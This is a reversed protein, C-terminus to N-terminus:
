KRPPGLDPAAPDPSQRRDPITAQVVVGQGPTSVIAFQGGIAEIRDRMSTIGIGDGDQEPPIGAGDDTVTLAIADDRRALTVTAKAGPGAHKAVNQIAEGACFYIAAETADALRGLGDDIVEVPLPSQSALSRLAGVPGLGVLAAPYIGHALSRLEEIASELDHQAEDIQEAVQASDTLDRALDLRIQTSVLRAQAGDHLDRELKRREREGAHVLRERSDALQGLSEKWASDLENNELALQAVAGAAQLLEPDESLQSDHVIAAAPQGDRQVETLTQGPGPPALVEGDAETWDHSRPAWFGLRLGPDGLPGRLMGELERLSPRGLSHRVLRRLTRGAYLEAAVLALLFGYWICARSAGYTWALWNSTLKASASLGNPTLNEFSRYATQIVLFLVAIPAGIALARRRPPNATAWRWAYLGIIALSVAVGAWPLFDFLPAIWSPASLIGLGNRPCAARCGSIEGVPPYVPATLFEVFWGAAIFWVAAIITQEAVGDLRGSPFAVIVTLTMVYIPIEWAVGVGYLGPATASELIYPISVLGLVILLVGLRNHPRRYRWYLGVFIPGLIFDAKQVALWYPYELFRANVTVWFAAAASM